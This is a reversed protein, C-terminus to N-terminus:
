PDNSYVLSSDAGRRPFRWTAHVFCLDKRLDKIQLKRETGGDFYLQFATQGEADQVQCYGPKPTQRSGVVIRLTGGAAKILLKKPIEVLEYCEDSPDRLRRLSFIREYGKMHELYRTLLGRLDELKDTWEGKGLEMFKSIHLKDPRINKDAQTKLSCAVDAITIDRGPNGRPARAARVGRGTLITELLYEFRDKSLAEASYTHHIRLADGFDHLISDSILSSQPNRWYEFPGELQEIIREISTLQYESRQQLRHAIREIRNDVPM